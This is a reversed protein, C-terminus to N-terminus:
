WFLHWKTWNKGIKNAYNWGGLDKVWLNSAITKDSKRMIRIADEETEFRRSEFTIGVVNLKVTYYTEPVFLEIEKEKEVIM